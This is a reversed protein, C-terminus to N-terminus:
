GSGLMAHAGLSGRVGSSRKCRMVLATGTLKSLSVTLDIWKGYQEMRLQHLWLLQQRAPGDEGSADGLWHLLEADFQPRPPFSAPASTESIERVPVNM